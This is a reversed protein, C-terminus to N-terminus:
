RNTMAARYADEIKAAMTEVSFDHRLRERVRGAADRNGAPSALDATMATALAEADDAPVLRHAEAGMIETIGGVDTAILPRGAALGELVIYPMSEARSPVVLTRGLGFAERAPMAPYFTVAPTLGLVDALERCAQEEPGSGVVVASLSPHDGARAIALAKIFVDPGKLDRLTGIFVFDAADSVDAVPDFEEPRLGNPVIAAYKPATVKATFTETEHQGVFVFMDTWRALIREVTFYLRGRASGEDFHLSGGHPTYIRAVSKGTARLLTGVFRAYAGGKAGHGHLVDPNLPRVWRGIRWSAALDSPAIGRHMPSRLLGLSLHPRLAELLDDAQQGGTSSDCIVGVNHGAAAQRESLDRVHRFLGGAPERFVHLINM